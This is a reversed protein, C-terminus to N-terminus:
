KMDVVEIGKLLRETRMTEHNKEYRSRRIIDGFWEFPTM